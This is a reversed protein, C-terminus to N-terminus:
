FFFKGAEPATLEGSVYTVGGNQRQVIQITGAAMKGGTLEFSIPQGESVNGLMQLFGADWARKSKGPERLAGAYPNIAMNFEATNTAAATASVNANSVTAGAKATSVNPATGAASVSGSPPSAQRGAVFFYVAAATATLGLLLLTRKLM